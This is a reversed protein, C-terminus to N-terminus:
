LSYPITCLFPTGPFKFLTTEPYICLFIPLERTACHALTVVTAPTGVKAWFNQIGHACGFFFFYIDIYM